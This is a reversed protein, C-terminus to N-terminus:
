LPGDPQLVYAHSPSRVPHAWISLAFCACLSTYLSAFTVHAPVRDGSAAAGASLPGAPSLLPQAAHATQAELSMM